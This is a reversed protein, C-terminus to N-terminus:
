RRVKKPRAGYTAAMAGQGKQGTVAGVAAEEIFTKINIDNGNQTVESRATTGNASNYVNNTVKVKAGGGNRDGIAPFAGLGGGVSGGGSFAPLSDNNIAELLPGYKKTSAANNVFEGDSLWALNSDSTGTGKGKVMGGGAFGFIGGFIDGLLSGGGQVPSQSQAMSSFFMEIGSKALSVGLDVIADKLKFTGAVMDDLWGGMKTELVGAWNAMVDMSSAVDDSYDKMAVAADFYSTSAQDRARNATETTLYGKAEAAAIENLRAQYEEMPTRTAEYMRAAAAKLPDEKPALFKEAIEPSAKKSPTSALFSPALKKAPTEFLDAKGAGSITQGVSAFRKEVDAWVAEVDRGAKMWAEGAASFDGSTLADFSSSGANVWIIMEQWAASVEATFKTTERLVWSIGNIMSKALEGTDVTSVFQESM